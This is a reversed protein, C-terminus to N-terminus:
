ASEKEIIKKKLFQIAELTKFFDEANYLDHCPLLFNCIKLLAFLAEEGNPKSM